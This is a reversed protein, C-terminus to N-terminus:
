IGLSFYDITPRTTKTVVHIFLVVERPDASELLRDTIVEVSTILADDELLCYFPDEEDSPKFGVPIEQAAKPMRLADFLTKLRGDIDGSQTIIRGPEEPRLLVVKLNAVLNVHENVLPVFRLGNVKRLFPPREPYYDEALFNQYDTLPKQQWLMRLQPHLIARIDHKHQVDSNIGKLIGRYYLRFEM